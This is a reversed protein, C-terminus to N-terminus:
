DPKRLATEIDLFHKELAVKAKKSDKKKIATLLDQHWKLVETYPKGSVIRLSPVSEDHFNWYIEAIDTATKNGTLGILTLHFEKDIRNFELPNDTLKQMHNVLQELQVIEKSTIKEFVKDIYFLDIAKRVDLLELIKQKKVLLGHPLSHFLNCFSFEKIVIGKGHVVEVIGITELIKLAERVSSKGCNLGKAIEAEPPLLDGVRFQSKVIYDRITEFAKLSLRKKERIPKLM